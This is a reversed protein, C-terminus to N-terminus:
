WADDLVQSGTPGIALRARDFTLPFVYGTRSNPLPKELISPTACLSPTGEPIRVIDHKKWM